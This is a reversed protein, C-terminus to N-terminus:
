RRDANGSRGANREPHSPHDFKKGFTARDVPIRATEIEVGVM